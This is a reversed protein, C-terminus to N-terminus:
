FPNELEPHTSRGNSGAPTASAKELTVSISGDEAANVDVDKPRHGKAKLTLKITGATRPVRVAGPTTGIKEEGLWVDTGEPAGYFTIGVDTSLRVLSPVSSAVLPASSSPARLTASTTGNGVTAHSPQRVVIVIGIGTVLAAFAVVGVLWAGRKRPPASGVESTSGVFTPGTPQAITKATAIEKAASSVDRLSRALDSTSPTAAPVTQGAAVTLEDVAQTLTAPRDGAEKALMHLIPADLSAPVEACAESAKPPAETIQKLLIDMVAEGRFPLKGTLMQFTM